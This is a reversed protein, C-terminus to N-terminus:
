QTPEVPNDCKAYRTFDADTFKKESYHTVKFYYPAFPIQLYVLKLDSERFLLTIFGFGLNQLEPFQTTFEHFQTSNDWSLDKKGQYLLYTSPDFMKSMVETFNLTIRSDVFNCKGTSSETVTIIGTTFNHYMTFLEEKENTMPNRGRISCKMRNGESDFSPHISVDMVVSHVSPDEARIFGHAEFSSPMAVKPVEEGQLFAQNALTLSVFFLIALLYKSM